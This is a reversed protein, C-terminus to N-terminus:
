SSVRKSGTLQFHNIISQAYSLDKIYCAIKFLKNYQEECSNEDVNKNRNYLYKGAKNIIDKIKQENGPNHTLKILEELQEQYALDFEICLHEGKPWLVIAARKYWYDMTNGYNGMWGEYESDSPKLDSLEMPYCIKGNSVFYQRYPLHNNNSDIWYYLHQEEDVIEVLEVDDEKTNYRYYDYYEENAWCQHLEILALNVILGKRNATCLLSLSNNRDRGKLTNWSLSHETYEHDLIYVLMSPKDDTSEHKSFYYELATELKSNTYDSLNVKESELVVNFTLAIHNGQKIKKVEHQCDAYFAICKIRDEDINESSFCYEDKNHKIVLNGGIHASPLVVILSAVMGELKESDQHKKFFQEQSYILMNHLEAKLKANEPLGMAQKMDDLMKTFKDKDFKVKLRDSKIERTNRVKKDLLTNEGLGFKAQSLLSILKKIYEKNIPFTLKGIGSAEISCDEMSLANESYFSNKVINQPSETLSNIIEKM